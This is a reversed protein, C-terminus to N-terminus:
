RVFRENHSVENKRKREQVKTVSSNDSWITPTSDSLYDETVERDEKDLIEEQPARPVLNIRGVVVHNQDLIEGKDNLSKGALVGPNGFTIKAVLDGDEDFVEGNGDVTLGELLSINGAKFEKVQRALDAQFKKLEIGFEDPDEPNTHQRDTEAPSDNGFLDDLSYNQPDSGALSEDGFLNDLDIQDTELGPDRKNVESPVTIYGNNKAPPEDGFLNDFPDTQHDELESKRRNGEKQVINRESAKDQSEDGFLNGFPDSLDGAWINLNTAPDCEMCLHAELDGFLDDDHLLYCGRHQYTRCKICQTIDSTDLSMCLCKIVKETMTATTLDPSITRDFSSFDLDQCDRVTESDPTLNERSGLHPVSAADTAATLLEERCCRGYIDSTGKAGDALRAMLAISQPRSDPEFSLMQLILSSAIATMKSLPMLVEPPCYESIWLQAAQFNDKFHLRKRGHGRFYTKTDSM